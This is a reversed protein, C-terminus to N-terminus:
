RMWFGDVSKDKLYMEVLTDEGKDAYTIKWVSLLLGGQRKLDGLHSVEYGHKLRPAQAAVIHEFIPRTTAARMTADLAMLYGPHDDAAIDELLLRVLGELAKETPPGAPPAPSSKTPEDAVAAPAFAVPSVAVAAFAALAALGCTVIILRMNM